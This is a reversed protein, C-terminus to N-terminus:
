ERDVVFNIPHTESVTLDVRVLNVDAASSVEDSVGLDM